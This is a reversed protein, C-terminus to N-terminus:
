KYETLPELINPGDYGLAWLGIGGLDMSKAYDVKVQMIRKDPYFIQHYTGTEQDKYILYSEQAEKEVRASCSACKSLMNEITRNSYVLASAPITASKPFDTITEWSYGYLPLGLIIKQKPVIKLAEKIPAETDLESITGAGQLPAVPGTVLSGPYHYDYAMVMLYDALPTITNPDVLYKKVFITPSVDISLTGLNNEDVGKRVEKFFQSFKVRAEDSAEKFSEIDINLDKFNYKKMIPTVEAILTKAHLIPDDILSYIKEEDASFIVLSLKVGRKTMDKLIQNVKDSNLNYWGSDEEQPNNLKLISGDIDVTLGFYALTTIYKSYDKDLKGLLGYYLFGMVERQPKLIPSILPVKEVVVLFGILIGVIIGALIIILNKKQLFIKQVPGNYYSLCKCLRTGTM